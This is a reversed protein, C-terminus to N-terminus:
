KPIDRTLDLSFVKGGHSGEVHLRDREKREFRGELMSSAQGGLSSLRLTHPPEDVSLDFRVREKGVRVFGYGGKEFYM